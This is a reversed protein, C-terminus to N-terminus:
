RREGETHGTTTLLGFPDAVAAEKAPEAVPRARLSAAIAVALITAIGLLSLWIPVKYIDTLLMKVGVLVLIAALGTRLHVFRGALDALLFYLARLGLIAFANSTFVLFPDRTVAFIAPISDVAFVVDTTEILVLVAFLPTAVRRGAERVFLHQGHYVPTLPVFRRVLRLVPNEAPNLEMEQRRFMKIGTFVLLAGFLYIVWHFAELLAAGALIFVARLVLAGFVGWFLVRHQYAAPVAFYTFIMSFVFVNDVSLSKEILYGALYEGAPEAGQWVWLAAGFGLGLAVWVGSWIAAEKAAVVHAERHLVFLDVALMAAVFGVFLAWVWWEVMVDGPQIAAHAAGGPLRLGTNRIEPEAL